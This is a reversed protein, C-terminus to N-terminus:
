TPRAYRRHWYVDDTFGLRRYLDAAPGGDDSNILLSRVAPEAGLRWRELM